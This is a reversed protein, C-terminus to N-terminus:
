RGFREIAGPRRLTKDVEDLHQEGSVIMDRAYEALLVSKGEALRQLEYYASLASKEHEMSERLIDGIDHQETELLSGIKLSPHGGLLTLLEGARHAHARSEEANEKLWSVIPISAPIRATPPVALNDYTFDTFLSDALNSSAPDAVHCAACNGKEPDLFLDLGRQEDDTFRARGTVVHDYKSSFPAFRETREFAAISTKIAEMAAATDDFIGPGWEERFRDAYDARSGRAVLAPPSEVNMEDATFFPQGAQDDLSAARGDLFQGGVPIPGEGDDVVAFAPAFKAYM